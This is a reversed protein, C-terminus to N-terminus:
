PRRIRHRACGSPFGTAVSAVKIGSGEVAKKAVCVMSPYVCVAAVTPLGEHFDHLHQAKYCMQQVKSPTDKGELTTLDIMNLIMRLGQAKSENKISRKQFRSVREEVGVKDIRPSAHFDPILLNTKGIKTNM